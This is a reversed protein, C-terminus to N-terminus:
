FSCFQDTKTVKETPKLSSLCTKRWRRNRKEWNGSRESPCDSIEGSRSIQSAGRNIARHSLAGPERIDKVKEESKRSSSDWGTIPKRCFVLPRIFSCALLMPVFLPFLWMMNFRVSHVISLVTFIIFGLSSHEARCSDGGGFIRRFNRAASWWALVNWLWHFPYLPCLLPCITDLFVATPARQCCYISKKQPNRPEAWSFLCNQRM